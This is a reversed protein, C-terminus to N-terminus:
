QKGAQPLPKVKIKLPQSSVSTKVTRGFPDDFFDDFISRSRRKQKVVADLSITMPEISIEGSRTPFLAVKRLTAVRYNIGNIIENGVRPQSPLKFEEMWFGTNTPLKEINYSRVDVRFYLKYEILIQQSQYVTSKDVFAKLYLNEGLLDEDKRSKPSEQQPQPASSGKVVTIEISNSSITEDDVDLTAEPISFKGEKQPRLYFTYTNSSSMAGNIFQINTSTNPGSLITFSEFSPFNPKPLSTSEGSVEITYVFRDNLGVRTKDVTAKLTVDASFAYGASSLVLTLIFFQLSRIGFRIVYLAINRRYPNLHNGRFM